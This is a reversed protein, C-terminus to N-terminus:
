AIVRRVGDLAFRNWARVGRLLYHGREGMDTFTAEGAVARAREVYARTAEASTIRDRRGHAAHLDKGALAGVPDGPPLWPALVVAGRVLDGDAVRCAARGGMSHGVLAVPVPGLESRLADLAWRVDDVKDAGDGNWGVTRYRLLRVAVRDRRLGRALSRALLAGRQWSLSRATVPQPDQEQGGHLVLVVASATGRVDHGTLSPRSRDPVPDERDTASPLIPPM